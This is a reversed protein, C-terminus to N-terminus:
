SVSFDYTTKYAFTRRYGSQQLIYAAEYIRPYKIWEALIKGHDWNDIITIVAGNYANGNKFTTITSASGLALAADAGYGYFSHSNTYTPMNETTNRSEYVADSIIDLNMSSYQQSRFIQNIVSDSGFTYIPYGHETYDVAVIGHANPDEDLFFGLLDRAVPTIGFKEANNYAYVLDNYAKQIDEESYPNGQAIQDLYQRDFLNKFSNYENLRVDKAHETLELNWKTGYQAEAAGTIVPKRLGANVVAGVGASLWQAVAPNTKAVKQIEGILAENTVGAYFGSGAKNGAVRASVEAVVGHAIAKAVKEEKTKPEWYHLQEFADKAFLRALEQREEVKKKDFIKDLKNLSNATDRSISRIDVSEDHVTITGDAIASKTTSHASKKSEPLLKPLLGLSNYVADQGAQSLSKFNGIHNYSVGTNKSSYEATNEIDKMVLRGTSVTNKEAAAKSDIIAGELTTTGKTTITYGDKGAFIGAQETVSAYNSRTDGKSHEGSISGLQTGNTSVSFGTNKQKGVYTEKDQLSQIYLNGGVNAIVRDGKVTSGIVNTDNGSTMNVTNATIRSPAYSVKETNERQMGKNYNADFGLVGGGNVSINAGVSWSKTDNNETKRSTNTAAQLNITNDAIVDVTKGQITEGIATITGTNPVNSKALLSTTNNSIIKGGAYDRNHLETVSKSYSSGIGVHINALGDKKARKQAKYQSQDGQIDAMENFGAQYEQAGEVAFKDRMGTVTKLQKETLQGSSALRDLRASFDMKQLGSDMLSDAHNVVNAPTYARYENVNTLGKRLEKGAEVYELAAM